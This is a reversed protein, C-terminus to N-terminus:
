QVLIHVSELSARRKGIPAVPLAGSAADCLLLLKGRCIGRVKGGQAPLQVNLPWWMETSLSAAWQPRKRMLKVSCQQVGVAGGVLPRLGGLRAGNCSKQEAQPRMLDPGASDAACARAFASRM